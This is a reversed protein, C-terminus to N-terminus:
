PLTSFRGISNRRRGRPQIVLNLHKWGLGYVIRQITSSNVEFRAAISKLPAGNNYLEAVIIADEDTLKAKVNQSGLKGRAEPNWRGRERTDRNNDARTGLYLHSPNVCTRNDCRHCVCLDGIKKGTHMEYSVRHAPRVADGKVYFKGYGSASLAATWEWCDDPGLVRVKKWFRDDMGFFPM